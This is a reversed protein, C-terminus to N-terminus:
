LISHKSEQAWMILSTVYAEEADSPVQDCVVVLESVDEVGKECRTYLRTLGVRVKVRQM